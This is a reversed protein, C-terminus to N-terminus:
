KKIKESYRRSLDKLQQEFGLKLEENYAGIIHFFFDFTAALANSIWRDSPGVDIELNGKIEWFYDNINRPNPHSLNSQLHYATKYADLRGVEEAMEKINKDAWSMRREIKPYKIKINRVQSMVNQLVEGSPDREKLTTSYLTDSSMLNHARLRMIWDYDFFREIRTIDKLIYSTTINLEFISRSLIGADQGFGKESLLLIAAQTKYAKTLAYLLFSEKLDRPNPYQNFMSEAIKKLEDNFNFLDNHKLRFKSM